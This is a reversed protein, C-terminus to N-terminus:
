RSPEDDDPGPAAAPAAGHGEPGLFFAYFSSTEDTPDLERALGFHSKSEALLTKFGEPDGFIVADEELRRRLIEALLAHAVSKVVNDPLMDTWQGGAELHELALRAHTEAAEIRETDLLIRALEMRPEPLRPEQKLIAALAEEAADVRGSEKDELARLFQQGLADLAEREADPATHEDHDLPDSM